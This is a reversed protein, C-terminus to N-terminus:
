KAEKTTYFFQPYQKKLEELQKENLRQIAQENHKRVEEPSIRPVRLRKNEQCM